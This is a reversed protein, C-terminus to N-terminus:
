CGDEPTLVVSARRQASRSRRRQQHSSTRGCGDGVRRVTRRRRVVDQPGTRLGCREGVASLKMGTNGTVASETPPTRIVTASALRMMAISREPVRAVMANERPSPSRTTARSRDVTMGLRPLKRQDGVAPVRDVDLCYQGSIGTHHEDVLRHIRRPGDILQAGSRDRDHYEGLVRVMAEVPESM